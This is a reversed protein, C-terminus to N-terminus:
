KESMPPSLVFDNTSKYQKYYHEFNDMQSKKANLRDDETFKVDLFSEMWDACAEVFRFKEFRDKAFRANEELCLWLWAKDDRGQLVYNTAGSGYIKGEEKHWRLQDDSLTRWLGYVEDHLLKHQQEKTM